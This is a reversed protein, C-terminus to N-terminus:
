GEVGNHAAAVFSRLEGANEAKEFHNGVVIGAAGAKVREAVAQASKLGGGVLVPLDVVSSVMQVMEIPVPQSAGSGAELYLLKMGLLEAAIAHAAAIEPKQRPLPKSNSMFETTTTAGSEVIMYGTSIAELEMQRILPAAIVHQGILHEPNRGSIMSLFLLGDATPSLHHVGGPFILVPKSTAVKISKLTEEFQWNLSLSGGVLFVDVGAEDADATFGPLEALSIKDPDILLFFLASGERRTEFLKDYVSGTSAM